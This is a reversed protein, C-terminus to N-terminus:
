VDSKRKHLDMHDLSNIELTTEFSDRYIRYIEKTNTRM